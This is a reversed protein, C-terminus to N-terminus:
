NSKVQPKAQKDTKEPAAAEAVVYGPKIYVYADERLSKTFKKQADMFREKALEGTISRQVAPEEFKHVVAEQREDLRIIQFGNQARIPDTIEGTKLNAIAAKVDPKLDELKFSGMKGNNARSPQDPASNKAVAEQFDGGARLEAVLRKARQEVENATENDIKLFIESLVVDGQVIFADKHADYFDHKEKETIKQFLPMYVERELVEHHQINKRLQRRAEDPDIGQAKMQQEFAIPDKFGNQQAIQILEQNVQAEVDINMEKCKQELLLDEIMLDLVTPKMKEYEANIEAESKGAMQRGLEDRFDHLANLYDARTIIDNNVQAIVENVLEPDQQAQASRLPIAIFGIALLAMIMSKM